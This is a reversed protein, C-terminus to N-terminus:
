FHERQRAFVQEQRPKKCLETLTTTRWFKLRSGFRPPEQDLLRSYSLRGSVALLSQPPRARTRM